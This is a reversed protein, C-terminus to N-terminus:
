TNSIRVSEKVKTTRAQQARYHSCFHGNKANPKLYGVVILPKMYKHSRNITGDYIMLEAIGFLQQYDIWNFLEKSPLGFFQAGCVAVNPSRFQKKIINPKQYAILTHPLVINDKLNEPNINKLFSAENIREDFDITIIVAVVIKNLDFSKLEDKYVKLYDLKFNFYYKIAILHKLHVTINAFDVPYLEIIEFNNEDKLYKFICKINESLNLDYNYNRYEAIAEISYQNQIKNTVDIIIYSSYLTINNNTVYYNNGTYNKSIESNINRLQATQKGSYYCYTLLLIILFISFLSLKLKTKM